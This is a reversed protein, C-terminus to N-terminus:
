LSQLRCVYAAGLNLLGIMPYLIFRPSLFGSVIWVLGAIGFVIALLLYLRRKKAENAM